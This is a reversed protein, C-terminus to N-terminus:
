KKKKKDQEGEPNELISEVGGYNMLADNLVDLVKVNFEAQEIDEITVDVGGGKLMVYTAAIVDSITYTGTGFMNFVEFFSKGTLKELEMMGGNTLFAPYEHGGLTIKLPELKSKEFKM